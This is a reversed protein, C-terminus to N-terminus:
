YFPRSARKPISFQSHLISFKLAIRRDRSVRSGVRHDRGLPIAEHSKTRVTIENERQPADPTQARGGLAIRRRTGM